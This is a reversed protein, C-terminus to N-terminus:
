LILFFGIVNVKEDSIDKLNLFNDFMNHHICM